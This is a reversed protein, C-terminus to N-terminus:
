ACVYYLTNKLSIQCSISSILYNGGLWYTINKVIPNCFWKVNSWLVVDNSDRVLFDASWQYRYTCTNINYAEMLRLARSLYFIYYFDHIPPEHVTLTPGLPSRQEGVERGLPHAMPYFGGAVISTSMCLGVITRDVSTCRFSRPWANDNPAIPQDRLKTCEISWRCVAQIALEEKSFWLCNFEMHVNSYKMLIALFTELDEDFFQKYLFMKWSPYLWSFLVQFLQNKRKNRVLYM